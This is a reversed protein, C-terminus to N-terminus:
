ELHTAIVAVVNGAPIAVAQRDFPLDLFLVALLALVLVLNRHVLKALFAAVKGGAPDLDLGLLELAEADRAIEVIGIQRHVEMRFGADGALKQLDGARPLKVTAGLRDHPRHNLTSSQSFGFDFIGIDLAVHDPHLERHSLTSRMKGAGEHDDPRGRGPRDGTVARDGIGRAHRVTEIFDRFGGIIEARTRALLQDKGVLQRFFGEGLCLQLVLAEAIHGRSIQRIEGTGMRQGREAIIVLHRQEVAIVDGVIGTRAEHMGCGAVAALVKVGPHRMGAVEFLAADRRGDRERDIIGAEVGGIGRAEFTPADHVVVALLAVRVIEDDLRQDLRVREKRAAPQLM